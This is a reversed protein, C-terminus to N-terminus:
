KEKYILASNPFTSNVQTNGDQANSHSDNM